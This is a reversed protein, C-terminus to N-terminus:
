RQPDLPYRDSTDAIGDGDMDPDLALGFTAANAAALSYFDPLGDDDSDVRAPAESLVLLTSRPYDTNTRFAPFDGHNTYPRSAMWSKAANVLLPNRDAPTAVRAAATRLAERADLSAMSAFLINLQTDTDDFDALAFAADVAPTLLARSEALAQRPLEVRARGKM